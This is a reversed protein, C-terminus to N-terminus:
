LKLMAGFCPVPQIYLTRSLRDWHLGVWFAGLNFTFYANVRREPLRCASCVLRGNEDIVADVPHGTAPCCTCFRGEAETTAGVRM